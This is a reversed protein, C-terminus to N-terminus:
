GLRAALARARRLEALARAAMQVQGIAERDDLRDASARAQALRAQGQARLAELDAILTDYAAFPNTGQAAGSITQSESVIEVFVRAPVLRLWIQVVSDSAVALEPVAPQSSAFSGFLIAVSM